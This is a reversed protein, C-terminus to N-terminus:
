HENTHFGMVQEPAKRDVDVLFDTTLFNRGILLKYSMHSRDRLNVEIKKKITHWSLFLEVVYRQETGQSNKVTSVKVIPTTLTHPTGDRNNTTFTLQKGINETPTESGNEISLNTAHMSTIRAGTDIRSLFPFPVGSIKIWATEGIVSKNDAHTTSSHFLCLLLAFFWLAKRM